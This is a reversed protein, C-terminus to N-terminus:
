REFSKDVTGNILEDRGSFFDLASEAAAAKARYVKM